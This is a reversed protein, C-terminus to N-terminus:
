MYENYEIKNIQETIKNLLETFFILVPEDLQKSNESAITYTDGVSYELLDYIDSAKISRNDAEIKIKEVENLLISISKDNNMKCKIVKEM